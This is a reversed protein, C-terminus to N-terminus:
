RKLGSGRSEETGKELRDPISNGNLDRNWNEERKIQLDKDKERNIDEYLDYDNVHINNVQGKNALDDNGSNKRTESIDPTASVKSIEKSVINMDNKIKADNPYQTRKTALYKLMKDLSTKYLKSNKQIEINKKREERNMLARTVIITMALLGGDLLMSAMLLKRQRESLRQLSTDETPDIRVNSGDPLSIEAGKQLQEKDEESLEFGNISVLNNLKPSFSVVQNTQSNYAYLINEDVGDQMNDLKKIDFINENKIYINEGKKVSDTEIGKFDIQVNDGVKFDGVKNKLNEEGWFEYERGNEAQLKVYTKIQNEDNGLFPKQSIEKIEGYGKIQKNYVESKLTEKNESNDLEQSMEFTPNVISKKLTMTEDLETKLNFIYKNDQSEVLMTGGKVFDSVQKENLVDSFETPTKMIGIKMLEATPLKEYNM